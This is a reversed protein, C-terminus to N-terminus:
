EGFIRVPKAIDEDTLNWVDRLAAAQRQAFNTHHTKIAAIHHISATRHLSAYSLWVFGLTVYIAIARM